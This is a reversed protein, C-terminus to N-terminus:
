PVGDPPQHIVCSHYQADASGATQVHLIINDTQLRITYVSDSWRTLGCTQLHLLRTLAYQALASAEAWSGVQFVPMGAEQAMKATASMLTNFFVSVAYLLLGFLM